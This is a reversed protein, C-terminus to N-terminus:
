PKMDLATKIISLCGELDQHVDAATFRLVRWGQMVLLNQRRRDKKFDELHRAHWQWGDLECCLAEEVFAIDLRFKRGPVQAPYESVAQPWRKIVEAFLITHIVSETAPKSVTPKKIPTISAIKWSGKGLQKLSTIRTM